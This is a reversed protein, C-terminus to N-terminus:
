KSSLIGGGIIAFRRCLADLLLQNQEIKKASSINDVYGEIDSISLRIDELYKELSHKM